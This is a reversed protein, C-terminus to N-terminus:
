ARDVRQILLHMLIIIITTRKNAISKRNEYTRRVVLLITYYARIGRASVSNTQFKLRLCRKETENERRTRVTKRRRLGQDKVMETRNRKPRVSPGRYSFLSRVTSM